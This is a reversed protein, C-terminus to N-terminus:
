CVLGLSKAFIQKELLVCLCSIKTVFHYLRAIGISQTFQAYIEFICDMSNVLPHMLALFINLIIVATHVTLYPM